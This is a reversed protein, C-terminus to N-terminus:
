GVAKGPNLLAADPERTCPPRARGNLHAPPSASHTARRTSGSRPTRCGCRYESGLECVCASTVRVTPGSPAVACVPSGPVGPLCRTVRAWRHPTPPSQTAEPRCACPSATGLLGDLPHSCTQFVSARGHFSAGSSQPGEDSSTALGTASFLEKQLNPWNKFFICM